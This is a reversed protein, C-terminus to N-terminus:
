RPLAADALMRAALERVLKAVVAATTEVPDRLPNMAVINAAIIRGTTKELVLLIDRM